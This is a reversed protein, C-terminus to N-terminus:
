AAGEGGGLLSLEGFGLGDGGVVEAALYGQKALSDEDEELCRRVFELEDADGGAGEGVECAGLVVELAGVGGVEAVGEVADEGADLEGHLCWGLGGTGLGRRRKQLARTRVLVM